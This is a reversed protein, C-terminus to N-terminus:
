IAKRLLIFDASSSDIEFGYALLAKMSSTSGKASPVVSGLMKSCGRQKAEEEIRDTIASAVGRKRFDPHIYIEKVYVTADDPYVYTAFGQETELVHGHTTEAVYAAYMSPTM